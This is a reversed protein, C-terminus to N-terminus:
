TRGGSGGSVDISTGTVYSCLPSLLLAAVPAVEEPRGPRGLLVGRRNVEEACWQALTNSTGSAAYRASQRETMIMGLNIANVRVGAPGLETALTRILNALAARLSSVAAMGPEPVHATVGNILLISGAGSRTLAPIAPLVAHLTGGIKIEFQEQWVAYPTNLVGGTAGAGASAVVGDLGGFAATVGGVAESMAQADRVDASWAAFRQEQGVPLSRRLEELREKDRALAAVRAGEALLLRVIERGVGQSGGTVLYSLGALGLDM